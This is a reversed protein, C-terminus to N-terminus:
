DWWVGLFNFLDMCVRFVRTQDLAGWEWIVPGLLLFPVVLGIALVASVAGWVVGTGFGALRSLCTGSNVGRDLWLAGFLYLASGWALLSIGFAVTNLLAHVLHDVPSSFVNVATSSGLCLWEQWVKSWPLYNEGVSVSVPLVLRSVAMTRLVEEVPHYFAPVVQLEKKWFAALAVALGLVGLRWASGHWGRFWGGVGAWLVFVILALDLWHLSTGPLAIM